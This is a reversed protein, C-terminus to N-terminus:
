NGKEGAKIAENVSNVFAEDQKIDKILIDIQKLFEINEETDEKPANTKLFERVMEIATIKKIEQSKNFHTKSLILNMWFGLHFCLFTFCIGLLIEEDTGDPIQKGFTSIFYKRKDHLIEFCKTYDDVYQVHAFKNRIEAFLQFQKAIEQPVFKLDTLLNVKANFSLASSKYGLSKSNIVDIDLIFGLIGSIGAEIAVGQEMVEARPTQYTM